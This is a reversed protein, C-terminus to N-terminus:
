CDLPKLMQSCRDQQYRSMADADRRERDAKAAADSQAERDRRLQDALMQDRNYARRNAADEANRQQTLGMLCHAYGDSGPVFGFGSCQAEDGAQLEAPSPGCGSLVLLVICAAGLTTVRM